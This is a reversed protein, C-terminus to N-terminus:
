LLPELRHRGFAQRWEYGGCGGIEVPVQADVNGPDSRATLEEQGVVNRVGPIVRDGDADAPDFVEFRGVSGDYFDFGAGPILPATIGTDRQVKPEPLMQRSIGHANGPGVPQYLIFYGVRNVAVKRILLFRPQHARAGAYEGPVSLRHGEDAVHESRRRETGAATVAPVKWHIMALM